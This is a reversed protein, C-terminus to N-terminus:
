LEYLCSGPSCSWTCLNVHFRNYVVIDMENCHLRMRIGLNNQTLIRGAILLLMTYDFQKMAQHTV